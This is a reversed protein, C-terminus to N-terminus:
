PVEGGAQVSASFSTVFDASLSEAKKRMLGLGYKGLRGTLM